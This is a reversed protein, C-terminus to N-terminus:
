PVEHVPTVVARGLAHFSLNFGLVAPSVSDDIGLDATDLAHVVFFYRHPGHGAPPAAGVYRKSGADNRVTVAGRPLGAGGEGGAGAALETVGAPINFVGWHWYGSATPADPDFCTVAFSRTGEPFGSWALHPSVDEGGTGIIGSTNRRPMARGDAIDRSTVDFAPVEPLFDYPSPPRAM